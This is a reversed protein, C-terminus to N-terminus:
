LIGPTDSVMSQTAASTASSRCVSSASATSSVRPTTNFAFSSRSASRPRRADSSSSRAMARRAHAKELIQQGEAAQELSGADVGVGTARGVDNLRECVHVEVRSVLDIVRATRQEDVAVILDRDEVDGEIGEPPCM